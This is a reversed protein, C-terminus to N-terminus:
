RARRGDKDGSETLRLLLIVLLGIAAFRDAPRSGRKSARRVQDLVREALEVLSPERKM